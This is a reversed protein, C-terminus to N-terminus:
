LDTLATQNKVWLQIGNEATVLDFQGFSGLVEAKGSFSPHQFESSRWNVKLWDSDQLTREELPSEIDEALNEALFGQRQDPLRIRLWGATKGEIRFVERKGLKDLVLSRTSPGQRLNVLEGKVRAWNNFLVSDAKPLKPLEPADQFFYIPDMSKWGRAYIGFHLHPATTRANGTNGVTGLTDGPKVKTGAAVLQSDLHAYYFSYRGSSIRVTKGGLRNNGVRSVRGKSVALVPTGRNAFVDVGEHKRRGGERPDGFFSAINLHSKELLPFSLTAAYSISLEVLGGKLLEPQLRLLYSGESRVPYRITNEKGEPKLDELDDSGNVQFLDMFWTATTDSLLKLDVTIEQGESASFLFSAAEPVAPDFQTLERYPLEVRNSDALSRVGVGEWDRVMSNGKLSSAKLDQLYKDYPSGSRLFQEIKTGQCSLCLFVLLYLFLNKM